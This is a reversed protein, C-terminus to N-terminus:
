CSCERRIGQRDNESVALRRPAGRMSELWENAVNSHLCLCVDLASGAHAMIPDPPNKKHLFHDSALSPWWM